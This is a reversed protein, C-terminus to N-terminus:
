ELPIVKQYVAVAKPSLSIDKHYRGFLWKKYLTTEFISNLFNQFWSTEDMELDMFRLLKSPADHTLIYDVQQSHAKLAGRCADMELDTPLEARWWQKGEAEPERETSEGGGFCLITKEEITYLEGKLLYHLRGSIQKAQGGAYPVTPYNRLLDFNEHCGDLFLLHYRLKGLKKLIKDEAPGGAWLFGFDGLVILTDKRKLRKAPGKKLRIFDGHLDGTVHIM